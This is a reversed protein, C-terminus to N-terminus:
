GKIDSQFGDVIAPARAYGALFRLYDEAERRFGAPFVGLEFGKPPEFAEGRFYHIGGQGSVEKIQRALEALVEVSVMVMNYVLLVFYLGSLLM